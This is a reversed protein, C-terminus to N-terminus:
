WPPDSHEGRFNKLWDVVYSKDLIEESEFSFQVNISHHDFWICLSTHSESLSAGIIIQMIYNLVQTPM